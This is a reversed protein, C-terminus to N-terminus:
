NDERDERVEREGMARGKGEREINGTEEGKGKTGM